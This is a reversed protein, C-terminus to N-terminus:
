VETFLFNPSFVMVLIDMVSSDYELPTSTTVSLIGCPIYAKPKIIVPPVGAACVACTHFFKTLPDM